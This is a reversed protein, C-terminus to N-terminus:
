ARYAFGRCVTPTQLLAAALRITVPAGPRITSGRAVGGGVLTSGVFCAAVVEAAVTATAAVTVDVAPAVADPVFVASRVALPNAAAASPLGGASATVSGISDDAPVALRVMAAEAEEAGLAAITADGQVDSRGNASHAVVRVRVAVRPTTDNVVVVFAVTGSPTPATVTDTILTTSSGTTAPAPSVTAASFPTSHAGGSIPPRGADGCGGLLVIAATATSWHRGRHRGSM